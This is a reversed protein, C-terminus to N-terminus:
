AQMITTKAQARIPQPPSLPLSLVTMFPRTPRAASSPAARAPSVESKGSAVIKPKGPADAVRPTPSPAVVKVRVVLPPVTIWPVMVWTALVATDHRNVCFRCSTPAPFAWNSSAYSGHWAATFAAPSMVKPVDPGPVTVSLKPLAPAVATAEPGAATMRCRWSLPVTVILSLVVGIYNSDCSLGPSRATRPSHITIQSVYLLVQIIHPPFTQQWPAFM